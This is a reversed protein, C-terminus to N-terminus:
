LVRNSKLPVTINYLIFDYLSILDTYFNEALENQNNNQFSLAKNFIAPGIKFSNEFKLEKLEPSKLLVKIYVRSDIPKGTLSLSAPEWEKKSAQILTIVEKILSSDTSNHICISDIQKNIRLIFSADIIFSNSQKNKSNLTFSKIHDGMFYAQQTAVFDEKGLLVYEDEKLFTGKKVIVKNYFYRKNNALLILEKYSVREIVFETAPSTDIILKNANLTLHFTKKTRRFEDIVFYNMIDISEDPNIQIKNYTLDFEVNISDLTQVELLLWKGCYKKDIQGYTITSISLLALLFLNRM